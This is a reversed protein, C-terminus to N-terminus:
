KMPLKPGRKALRKRNSATKRSLPDMTARMVKDASHGRAATMTGAMMAEMFAPGKEAVMRKKEHPTVSWLGAMGMVRYAVVTHTEVMLTAFQLSTSMLDTPTVVHAM